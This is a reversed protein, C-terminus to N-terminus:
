INPPKPNQLIPPNILENLQNNISILLKNKDTVNNDHNPNNISTVITEQIQKIRNILKHVNLQKVIETKLKNVIQELEAKTIYEQVNGPSPTPNSQINNNVMNNSNNNNNDQQEKGSESVPLTPFDRFNLRIQTQSPNPYLKEAEPYTIKNCAMARNIDNQRKREKCAPDFAKHGEKCHLCVIDLSCCDKAEHGSNSCNCCRVQTAKCVNSKHGYRVCKFCFKVPYVYVDVDYNLSYIKVERPLKEGEAYIKISYTPELVKNVMKKIREVKQIKIRPCDLNELIEKESITPPVNRVVGITEKFMTPVFVKYNFQETLIKSNILSEAHRPNEFSIKFRNKGAKKLETYRDVKINKLLKAIEMIHLPKTKDDKPEIFFTKFAKNKQWGDDLFNGNSDGNQEDNKNKNKEKKRPNKGNGDKKMKKTEHENETDMKRRLPNDTASEYGNLSENDELPSSFGGCEDDSVIM